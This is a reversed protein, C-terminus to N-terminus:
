YMGRADIVGKFTKSSLRENMAEITPNVTIDTTADSRFTGNAFGNLISALAAETIDGWDKNIGDAAANTIPLGNFYNGEGNKNITRFSVPFVYWEGVPVPFYGVPKGHTKSPGVLRVDMYPKLNNILLESASATGSSVIFFIRNVNVSGLKTFRTTYNYDPHKTNFKETMMVQGNNTANILYNALKEQVTVYGGGNYRLDIILENIGANSFRNFVRNFENYIQATDGLFSNFVLYGARKNGITYVSDLVVPRNTYSGANLTIDVTSGDSKQFTFSTSSTSEYVNNIIFTANGTTINTNGNIKTIRWGRRVGALGAASEREVNTVRLDGEVRFFVQIGFDKVGAIAQYLSGRSLDDWETKKMAFSWRDVATTYGLEISFPRIGAMIEEPGAFTQPNFSTPIQEYWLYLDRTIQLVSDKLQRAIVSDNNTAVSNAAVPQEVVDKQCSSFMSGSIALVAATIVNKLRLIPLM